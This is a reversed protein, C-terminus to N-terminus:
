IRVVCSVAALVLSGYAAESGNTSFLAALTVPELMRISDFFCAALVPNVGSESWSKIVADRNMFLLPNLYSLDTGPPIYIDNPDWGAPPENDGNIAGSLIPALILLLGGIEESTLTSPDVALQLEDFRVQALNQLQRQQAPTLGRIIALILIPMQDPPITSLDLQDLQLLMMPDKIISSVDGSSNLAALLVAQLNGVQDAGLQGAAAAALASIDVGALLQQIAAPDLNLGEIGLLQGTPNGALSQASMVITTLSEPSLCPAVSWIVRNMTQADLTALGALSATPNAPDIATGSLTQLLSIVAGSSEPNAALNDYMCNAEGEALGMGVLGAVLTARDPLASGETPALSGTPRNPSTADDSWSARTDRALRVGDTIWHPVENSAAGDPSAEYDEVGSCGAILAVTTLSVVAATRLGM